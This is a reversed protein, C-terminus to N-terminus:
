LGVRKGTRLSESRRGARDAGRVVDHAGSAVNAGLALSEFWAAGSSRIARLQQGRGTEPELPALQADRPDAQQGVIEVNWGILDCGLYHPAGAGPTCAGCGWRTLGGEDPM